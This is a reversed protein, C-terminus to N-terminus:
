SASFLEQYFLSYMWSPYSVDYHNLVSMTICNVVFDSVERNKNNSLNLFLQWFEAEVRGWKQNNSKPVKLLKALSQKLM